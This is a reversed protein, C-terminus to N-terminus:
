LGLEQLKPEYGEESLHLADPMIAASLTDDDELFVDAIDLWHVREGDAM